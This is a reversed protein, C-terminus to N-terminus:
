WQEVTREVIRRALDKIADKVATDESKAQPGMTFYTTDGTFGNEQWILKETKADILSINVVINIRYEEIDDDETYRVPDRRFDTVEGRLVVDAASEEVPRLNGDFIYKDAVAKTVERELMPRYVKYKNAVASEQTFDIKNVFPKIYIKNYKDAIMSRTTYGCGAIIFSLLFFVPSLRLNNKRM